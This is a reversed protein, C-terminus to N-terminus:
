YFLDRGVIADMDAITSEADDSVDDGPEVLDNGEYVTVGDLAPLQSVISALVMAAGVGLRNNVLSLVRLHVLTPLIGFFARLASHGNLGVGELALTDLHTMGALLQAFTGEPAAHPEQADPAPADTVGLLVLSLETLNSLGALHQCCARVGVCRLLSLHLVQLQNLTGITQVLAAGAISDAAAAAPNPATQQTRADVELTLATLARLSALAPSLESFYAASSNADLQWDTLWLTRLTCLNRLSGMLAHWVSRHAQSDSSPWMLLQLVALATLDPLARTFAAAGSADDSSTM